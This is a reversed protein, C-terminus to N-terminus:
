NEGGENVSKQNEKYAMLIADSLLFSSEGKMHNVHCKENLRTRHILNTEVNIQKIVEMITMCHM